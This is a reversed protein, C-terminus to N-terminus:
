VTDPGLKIRPARARPRAVRRDDDQVQHDSPRGGGGGFIRFLRRRRNKKLHVGHPRSVAVGGLFCTVLSRSCARRTTSTLACTCAGSCGRSCRLTDKQLAAASGRSRGFVPSRTGFTFYTAIVRARCATRALRRPVRRVVAPAATPRTPETTARASSGPSGGAPPAM